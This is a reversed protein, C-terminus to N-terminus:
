MGRANGYHYLPRRRNCGPRRNYRPILRLDQELMDACFEGGGAKDEELRDKAGLARVFARQDEPWAAYDADAPKPPINIAGGAAMARGDRGGDQERVVEVAVRAEYDCARVVAGANVGLMEWRELEYNFWGPLPEFFLNENNETQGADGAAMVEPIVRPARRPDARSEWARVLRGLFNKVNVYARVGCSSGDLQPPCWITRRWRWPDALQLGADTRSGAGGPAPGPFALRAHQLMAEVRRYVRETDGNEFGNIVCIRSVRSFYRNPTARNPRGALHIVVTVWHNGNLNVTLVSWAHRRIQHLQAQRIQGTSRFKVDNLRRIFAEDAATSGLQFFLEDTWNEIYVMGAQELAPPLIRENLTSLATTLASDRVWSQMDVQLQHVSDINGVIASEEPLRLGANTNPLPRLHHYPDDRSCILTGLLLNPANQNGTAM